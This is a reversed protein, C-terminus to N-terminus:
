EKKFFALGTVIPSVGGGAGYILPPCEGLTERWWNRDMCGKIYNELHAEHTFFYGNQKLRPWLYKICDQASSVYDVDMFVVAPNIDLTPLTESFLGPVFECVEINGYQAVNAKVEDISGAFEGEQFVFSQSANFIPSVNEGEILPKQLGQFSDCVYLRRNTKKALISLKATSGGKFAGCEVIPGDVDCAFLYKSVLAFQFPSHPCSVNNHIKKFQSLLYKKCSRESESAASAIFRRQEEQLLIFLALSKWFGHM